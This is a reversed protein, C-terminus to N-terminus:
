RRSEQLLIRATCPPTKLCSKSSGQSLDDFLNHLLALLFLFHWEAYGMVIGAPGFVLTDMPHPERRPHDFSYKFPVYGM